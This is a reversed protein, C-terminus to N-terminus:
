LVPYLANITRVSRHMRLLGLLLDPQRQSRRPGTRSIPDVLPVVM